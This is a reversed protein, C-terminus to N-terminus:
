RRFLLRMIFCCAALVGPLEVMQVWSDGQAQAAAALMM